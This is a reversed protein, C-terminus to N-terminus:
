FKLKIGFQHGGLGAGIGYQWQYEFGLNKYFFGGGASAIGFTSWSAAAFPVFVRERYRTIERYVPVYDYKLDSLKNYQVTESLSLRGYQPTDFLVFQYDRQAIYDAIIAATDVREVLYVVSDLWVTDHKVPLVPFLPVTEKVPQPNSLSGSVPDGAVYRVTEKTPVTMRGLMFAAALLILVTLCTLGHSRLFHSFNNM